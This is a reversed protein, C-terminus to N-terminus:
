RAELGPAKTFKGDIRLSRLHVLTVREVTEGQKPELRVPGGILVWGGDPLTVTTRVRSVHLEPIQITVEHGQGEGVKTKFEPIPRKLMAFTGEFECTISRTQTGVSPRLDIVTGEQIVDVVPDAITSGDKAVEVDFDRIYSVRNLVSVNAKQKDYVTIRPASVVKVDERAAVAELFAAAEAATLPVTNKAETPRHKGLFSVAAQAPVDIVRVQANVVDHQEGSPTPMVRAPPKPEARKQKLARLEKFVQVLADRDAQKLWTAVLMQEGANGDLILAALEAATPEGDEAFAPVTALVVLLALTLITRM